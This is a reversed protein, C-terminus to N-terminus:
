RRRSLQRPPPSPLAWGQETRVCPPAPMLNPMEGAPEGPLVRIRGSFDPMINQLPISCQAAPGAASAEPAPQMRLTRRAPNEQLKPAVAGELARRIATEVAKRNMLPPSAPATEQAALPLGARLLALPLRM